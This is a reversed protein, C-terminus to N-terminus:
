KYTNLESNLKFSDLYKIGHNTGIAHIHYYLHEKELDAISYKKQITFYDILNFISRFYLFSILEINIDIRYNGEEQGRKLNESITNPIREIFFNELKVWCQPYLKKIDSVFIPKMKVHQEYNSRYILILEEIANKSLVKIDDLDTTHKEIHKNINFDVIEDKSAFCTYITKKSIGLETAIDDICVAKTGLQFFLKEATCAIKDKV